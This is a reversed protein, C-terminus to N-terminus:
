SGSSLTIGVVGIPLRLRSEQRLLRQSQPVLARRTGTAPPTVSRSSRGESELRLGLAATTLQVRQNSKM